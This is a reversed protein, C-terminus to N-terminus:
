MITQIRSWSKNIHKIATIAMAKKIKPNVENIFRSLNKNKGITVNETPSLIKSIAKDISLQLQPLIYPELLMGEFISISESGNFYM